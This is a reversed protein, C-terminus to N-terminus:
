KEYHYRLQIVTIIEEDVRYVLRNKSDIRRSWYGSLGHKLPEPKGIGTFPTECINELLAVIKKLTKKDNAQYFVLEEKALETFSIEKMLIM